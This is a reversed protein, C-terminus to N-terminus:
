MTETSTTFLLRQSTDWRNLLLALTVFPIFLQRYHYNKTYYTPTITINFLTINETTGRMIKETAKSILYIHNEPFNALLATTSHDTTSTTPTPTTTTHITKGQDSKLRDVIATYLADTLETMPPPKATTAPEPVKVTATDNPTAIPPLQAAGIQNGTRGKINNQAENALAALREELPLRPPEPPAM